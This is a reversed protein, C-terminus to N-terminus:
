RCDERMGRLGIRLNKTAVFVERLFMLLGGIFSLM